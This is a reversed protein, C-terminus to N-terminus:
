APPSRRISYKDAPPWPGFPRSCSLRPARKLMYRFRRARLLEQLYADDQVAHPLRDGGGPRAGPHHAHRGAREHRAHRHGHCRRRTGTGRGTRGRDRRRQGRGGRDHRVPRRAPASARDCPSTIKSSCCASRRCTLAGAGRAQARLNDARHGPAAEIEIAAGALGARERMSLLGLGMEVDGGDLNFGVGDDEVVLVIFGERRELIVDVRSAQAHKAINNLAEQAIRYFSTETEPTLRGDKLGASRFEAAIGHHESWAHLYKSLAVVLGLDDLAAPRLEWALFDIESDIERALAQARALEDRVEDGAANEIRDLSLRLATLQQGVHDHIDRAVRAREDEQVTVLQRVLTTVRQEAEARAQVEEQLQITRARVRDEVSDQSQRLAEAADRPLTLDRAIKAFGRSEAEGLVTTVGSCSLRTGGKRQYWREDEAPRSVRARELEREPIGAARDDETFIVAVPRGIIENNIYGFMRRAGANWSDVLGERTITFIAYERLSDILLRLREESARVSSEAARRDTIDQFTMVVGEIRQDTTRYPLVRTLFWRGNRAQLEREVTQLTDLVVEADQPLGDYLVSSTIDSLPRGVDLPLLNFVDRARPTSLKM